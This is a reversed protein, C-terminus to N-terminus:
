YSFGKKQWMLASNIISVNEKFAMCKVSNNIHEVKIICETSRLFLEKIKVLRESLLPFINESKCVSPYLVTKKEGVGCLLLDVRILLCHNVVVM